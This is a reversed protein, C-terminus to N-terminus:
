LECELTMHVHFTQQEPNSGTLVSSFVAYSNNQGASGSVFAKTGVNDTNRAGTGAAGPNFTTLTGGTIRKPAHQWGIACDNSDDQRMVISGVFGASAAPVTAEDFTKEYYRLCRLKEEPMPRFLFFTFSSARDIQIETITISKTGADLSGSPARFRVELGNNIDTYASIDVTHSVRQSNTSPISTLSQTLRNTVTAFNDAVTPTGLLLDLVLAAGTENKVLASVTVTSKVYPMLYSEVRQGAVDCTTVSTAGTVKLAYPTIAGTPTTTVRSVAVTAGVPQTFWRDIFMTRSGVPANGSTGRAAILMAGNVLAEAFLSPGFLGSAHYTDLTDADAGNGAGAKKYALARLKTDTHVLAQTPATPVDASDMVVNVTTDVSFSSSTVFGFDTTAGVVKIRRDAIFHATADCAQITFQTTSNRVLTKTGVASLQYTEDIYSADSAHLRIRAMQERGWDNVNAGTWGEAAGDPVASNNNAATTSWKFLDM